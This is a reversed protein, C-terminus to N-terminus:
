AGVPSSCTSPRVWATSCLARNVAGASGKCDGSRSTASSKCTITANAGVEVVNRETGGRYEWQNGIGLPFYPNPNSLRRFDGDFRDPAFVPDYRGEGLVTCASRRWNRQERCAKGAESRTAQSREFVARTRADAINVCKTKAIFDDDSAEFGCATHLLNATASCFGGDPPEFGDDDRAYSVPPWFAARQAAPGSPTTPPFDM